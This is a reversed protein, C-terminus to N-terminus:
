ECHHTVCSCQARLEPLDLVADADAVKHWTNDKKGAEIFTLRGNKAHVWTEGEDTGQHGYKHSMDAKGVLVGPPGAPSYKAAFDISASWEAGLQAGKTTQPTDRKGNAPEPLEEASYTGSLKLRQSNTPDVRVTRRDFYKPRDTYKAHNFDLYIGALSSVALGHSMPRVVVTRM